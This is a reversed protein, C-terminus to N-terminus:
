DADGDLVSKIASWEVRPLPNAPDNIRVLVVNKVREIDCLDVFLQPNKRGPLEYVPIDSNLVARRVPHLPLGLRRAIKDLSVHHNLDGFEM